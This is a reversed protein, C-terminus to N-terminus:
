ILHRSKTWDFYSCRHYFQGQYQLDKVWLNRIIVVLFNNSQDTLPYQEAPDYLYTHLEIIETVAFVSAKNLYVIPIDFESPLPRRYRLFFLSIILPRSLSGGPLDLYCPPIM